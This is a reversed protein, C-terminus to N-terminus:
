KFFFVAIEDINGFIPTKDSEIPVLMGHVQQLRAVDRNERRRERKAPYMERIGNLLLKIDEHLFGQRGIARSRAPHEFQRLFGRCLVQLYAHTQHRTVTAGELFEM